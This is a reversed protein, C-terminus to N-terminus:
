GIYRSFRCSQCVIIQEDGITTLTMTKGCEPCLHTPQKRRSSTLHRAAKVTAPDGAARAKNIELFRDHINREIRDRVFRLDTVGQAEFVNALVMFQQLTKTDINQFVMSLM